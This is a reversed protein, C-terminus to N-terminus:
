RSAKFQEVSQTVFQVLQPAIAQNAAETPHSDVDTRYAARLMNYDPATADGEALQDFLDYTVLNVRGQKFEDSMLWNTLARARAAEVPDTERPILPPQTLLIFLKDPHQDITGLMQRYYAKSKDLDADTGIESAPFCSKYLIVEHQLLGSLTNLPLGYAPQTFVRALGDPDTNDDPVSYAYGTTRGSPDRLQQWNYGQDWFQYGASTFLERVGGQEILNNGVSHHLWVVNRYDGTSTQKVANSKSVASILDFTARGFSRLNLGYGSLVSAAVVLAILAVLLAGLRKHWTNAPSTPKSQILTTM